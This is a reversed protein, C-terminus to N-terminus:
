GAHQGLEALATDEAAYDFKGPDVDGPPHAREWAITRRLAEDRPVPEAYGLEHRIRETSVIWHQDTDMTTRLREPLRDPPGPVVKGDWGTVRGILRVWEAESLADPEAVNYVRGAARDDTVALAIAVAVNEVYGRSARLRALGEDLVIARRGDDMRKLYPFLRHQYDGVGYVMPLRLITGLLHRQGMVVREVLIKDYDDQWRRRDDVARRGHPEEGRYPYLRDRLPSDETLPTPDPPGPDKRRLRDYARYVDMSSIAVVRRALRGVTELLTRADQETAPIMDLVVDPALRAFTARLGPLRGRDGYVHEVGSPLDAETRGRHFLTVEHGAEHLRRVVFPGIFGTGGIVLIRM